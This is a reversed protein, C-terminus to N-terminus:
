DATIFWCYGNALNINYYGNTDPTIDQPEGNLYFTINEGNIKIQAYKPEAQLYPISDIDELNVITFAKGNGDNEEFFGLLYTDFSEQPNIFDTIYNNVYPYADQLYVSAFEKNANITNAAVAKYNCYVPALKLLEENTEKADYWAQNKSFDWNVLSGKSWDGEVSYNPSADGYQFYLIGKAGFSLSVYSSWRLMKNTNQQRNATNYCEIYSWMDKGTRLSLDRASEFVTLLDDNTFLIQKGFYRDFSVVPVTEFFGEAESHFQWYRSNGLYNVLPKWGYKGYEKIYADCEESYQMYTDATPEDRIIHGWIIPCDLYIDTDRIGRFIVFIDYRACWKTFNHLEQKTYYGTEVLTLNFHADHMDRIAFQETFASVSYNAALLVLPPKQYLRVELCSIEHAPETYANSLDDYGLYNAMFEYIARMDAYYNNGGLIINGHVVGVVYDLGSQFLDLTDNVGNYHNSSALIIEHERQPEADSIVELEFGLVHKIVDRLLNVEYMRYENYYSPYVIVYDDLEGLVLSEEDYQPFVPTESSAYMADALSSTKQLTPPATQSASSYPAIMSCSALSLISVVCFLLCFIKKM